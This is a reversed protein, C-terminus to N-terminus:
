AKVKVMAPRIVKGRLAFGRRLEDVVTNEPCDGGEEKMVAEHIEPNFPQGVAVIPELGERALIEQIQRSIMLVGELLKETDDYKMSLARDLNDIVPLLCTIINESACKIIEERERVARKRFNDFDAQMRVLSNRHDEARAKEAELLKLLSEREGADETIVEAQAYIPGDEPTCTGEGAEEKEPGTDFQTNPIDKGEKDEL